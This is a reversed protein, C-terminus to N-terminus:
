AMSHVGACSLPLNLKRKLLGIGNRLCHFLKFNKISLPPINQSSRTKPGTVVPILPPTIYADETKM